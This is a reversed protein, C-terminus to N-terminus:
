IHILSLGTAGFLGVLNTSPLNITLNSITHGLGNFTGAFQYPYSSYAIPTFGAGGNWSSTATADINSGLAYYGFPNGGNIGQLDTGTISGAEGLSNIVMYANGAISLSPNTGSLTISNGTALNFAGSGSAAQSSDRICM